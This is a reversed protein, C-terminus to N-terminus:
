RVVPIGTTPVAMNFKGLEALNIIALAPVGRVPMRFTRGVVKVVQVPEIFVAKGTPRALFLNM